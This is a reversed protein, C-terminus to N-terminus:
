DNKSIMRIFIIKEILDRQAWKGESSSRELM